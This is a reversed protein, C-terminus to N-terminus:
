RQALQFGPDTALRLVQELSPQIIDIAPQPFVGLLVTLVLLPV